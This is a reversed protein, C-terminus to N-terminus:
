PKAADLERALNDRVQFGREEMATRATPSVDGLFDLEYAKAVGATNERLQDLATSLAPTWSVSDTAAMGLVTGDATLALPAARGDLIRVLKAQDPQQHRRVLMQMSFVFFYGATESDAAAGQVVLKERGAVGALSELAQTIYTQRTPSLFPNDMFAKIAQPAAGIAALKKENMLKLDYPDTGWVLENTKRVYNVGPISPLGAFRVGFRGVADVKAVAAIEKQLVANSSYPDVGLKQAWLRQAKTIGLYKKAYVTSADVAKDTTSKGAEGGTEEADSKKMDSYADQAKAKTRNFLRTVGGPIGKATGVPDQAIAAITEVQGVTATKLGEKVADAFVATKSLEALEALAAIERIRIELLARGEADFAGFDSAIHYTNMFGDNEIPAVVSHHPGKAKEAPLTSPDLARPPEFEAAPLLSPLLLASLALLTPTCLARRM